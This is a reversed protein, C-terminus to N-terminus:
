TSCVAAAGRALQGTEENGIPALDAPYEIDERDLVARNL